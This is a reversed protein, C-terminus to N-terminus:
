LSIDEEFQVFQWSALKSFPLLLALALFFFNGIAGLIPIFHCIIKLKDDTVRQNSYFSLMQSFCFITGKSSLHMIKNSINPM